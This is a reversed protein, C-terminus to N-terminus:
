NEGIKPKGLRVTLIIVSNKVTVIHRVTRHEAGEAVPIVVIGRAVRNGFRHLNFDNRTVPHINILWERRIPLDACM